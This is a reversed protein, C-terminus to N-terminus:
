DDKKPPTKIPPPIIPSEWEGTTGDEEGPKGQDPSPKKAQEDKTQSM